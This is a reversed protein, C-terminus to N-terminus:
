PLTTLRTWYPGGKAQFHGSHPVSLSVIMTGLCSAREQISTWGPEMRDPDAVVEEATRCSILAFTSLIQQRSASQPM